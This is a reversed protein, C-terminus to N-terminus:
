NVRRTLILDKIREPTGAPAKIRSAQFGRRAEPSLYQLSLADYPQGKEDVGFEPGILGPIFGLVSLQAYAFHVSPSDTKVHVVISQVGSEIFSQVVSTIDRGVQNVFIEASRAALNHRLSFHTEEAGVRQDAPTTTIRRSIGHAAYVARALPRAEEPIFVSRPESLDAPRISAMVLASERQGIAFTDDWIGLLLGLPQYGVSLLARTSVDHGTACDSYLIVPHYREMMIDHRRQALFGGVGQGRESPSVMARGMEFAHHPNQPNRVLAWRDRVIANHGIVHGGRSAVLSLHRGTRLSARFTDEQFFGNYPYHPFAQHALGRLQPLHHDIEHAPTEADLFSFAMADTDGLIPAAHTQVLSHTM